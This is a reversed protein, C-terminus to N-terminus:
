QVLFVSFFSETESYDSYYSKTCWHVLCILKRRTPVALMPRWTPRASAAQLPRLGYNINGTCKHRSKTSKSEFLQFECHYELRTKLDGLGVRPRWYLESQRPAASCRPRRGRRPQNSQAFQFVTLQKTVYKTSKSYM